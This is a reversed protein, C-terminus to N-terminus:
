VLTLLTRDTLSGPPDTDMFMKAMEQNSMAKKYAEEMTALDPYRIVLAWEGAGTGSLVNGWDASEAGNALFFDKTKKANEMSEAVRAPPIQFRAFSLIAM